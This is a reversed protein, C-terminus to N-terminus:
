LPFKIAVVSAIMCFVLFLPVFFFAYPIYLNSQEKNRRILAVNWIVAVGVAAYFPLVRWLDGRCVLEDPCSYHSILTWLFVLPVLLAPGTQFARALGRESSRIWAMVGPIGVACGMVFLGVLSDNWGGLGALVLPMQASKILVM